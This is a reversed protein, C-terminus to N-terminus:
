EGPALDTDKGAVTALAFLVKPDTRPTLLRVSGDAFAFNAGAPHNGGFQGGAGVLVAAGAADDFGRVTAPGGRLWPGLDASREGFLLTQSLGDTIADFPTPADYRYCGARPPAPAPPAPVVLAAADAGLGAVGVYQTPAPSDADSDPPNGPCLVAVLKARAARQNREAPWPQATDIAALLPGSSQRKQNLGPLARVVWSLRNEPPTNPLAITGAPIEHLFRGPAADPKPVAHHAAFQAVERLNNACAVENSAARMKPVFSVGVGVAVLALSAVLGLLIVRRSM